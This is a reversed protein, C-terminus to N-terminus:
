VANELRWKIVSILSTRASDGQKGMQLPLKNIPTYLIEVLDQIYSTIMTCQPDIPLKNNVIGGGCSYKRLLEKGDSTILSFYLELFYTDNHIDENAIINLHGLPTRIGQLCLAQIFAPLPSKEPKM